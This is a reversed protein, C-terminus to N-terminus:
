GSLEGLAAIAREVTEDLSEGGASVVAVDGAEDPGPAELTEFQSDVMDPKMYHGTRHALRQRATEDSVELDLFRVGDAGRLADRYRRALASCAVVVGGARLEQRVRALWPWRDEDTLPIGAAMKAVNSAPHLDDGDCFRLGLREAVARGVTTKGAGSVGMVVISAAPRREDGAPAAM